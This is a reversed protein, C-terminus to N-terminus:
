KAPLSLAFALGQEIWAHLTADDEVGEPDVMVWGAMPRGTMDFPRTHPQAMAQAHKEPGVRVIMAQQHVGCAMNGNVMFAVGGFMAKETMTPSMKLREILRDRIRDALSTNYPM